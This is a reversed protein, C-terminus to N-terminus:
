AQVRVPLKYITIEVSLCLSHRPIQLLVQFFFVTSGTGSSKNTTRLAAGTFLCLGITRVM